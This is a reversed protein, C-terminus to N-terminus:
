FGTDMKVAQDYIPSQKNVYGMSVKCLSCRQLSSEIGLENPGDFVEM